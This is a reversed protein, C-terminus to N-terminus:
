EGVIARTDRLKERAFVLRPRLTEANPARGGIADLAGIIEIPEAAEGLGILEDFAGDGFYALSAPADIEIEAVIPPAVEGDADVALVSGREGRGAEVEFSKAALADAHTAPDLPAVSRHDCGGM